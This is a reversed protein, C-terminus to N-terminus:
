LESNGHGTVPEHKWSERAFEGVGDNPALQCDGRAEFGGFLGSSKVSLPRAGAVPGCANGWAHSSPCAGRPDSAGTFLGM